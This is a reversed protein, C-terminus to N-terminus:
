RHISVDANRRRKKGFRPVLHARFVSLKGEIGSPKQRNARCHGEIFRMEFEALTPVEKKTPPPQLATQGARFLGMERAEGWRQSASKGSVPSRLRERYLTGDPWTFRIDVEYGGRKYIRIRVTM